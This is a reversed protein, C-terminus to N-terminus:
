LKEEGELESRIKKVFSKYQILYDELLEVFFFGM